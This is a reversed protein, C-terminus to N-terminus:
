TDSTVPPGTRDLTRTEKALGPRGAVSQAPLGRGVNVARGLPKRSSQRLWALPVSYCFWALSVCKVNFNLQTFFNESFGSLVTYSGLLGFLMLHIRDGQAARRYSWTVAAGLGLVMLMTGIWGFDPLFAFYMTYANGSMGPRIATFEAHIPPVYVDFGLRSAIQLVSRSIRWVPPIADPNAVIRDFAVVGALTYDAMSRFIGVANEGVSARVDGGKNMLIAVPAFALVFALAGYCVLKYNIRGRRISAIIVLGVLLFFIGVRGATGLNFLLAVGILTYFRIKQFLSVRDELCGLFAILISFGSFSDFIFQSFSKMGGEESSKILADRVAWMSNISAFPSSAALEQMYRWYFPIGAVFVIVSTTLIWDLFRRRDPPPPSIPALCVRASSRNMWGGFSFAAAGLVYFSLTEWSVPFFYDGALCLCVLLFTWLACFMAPPYLLTKGFRLNLFTLVALLFAAAAVLMTYTDAWLFFLGAAVPALVLVVAAGMSRVGTM